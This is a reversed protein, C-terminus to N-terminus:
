TKRVPSPPALQVFMVPLRGAAGILTMTSVRPISIM